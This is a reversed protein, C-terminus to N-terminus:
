RVNFRGNKKLKKEIERAKKDTTYRV